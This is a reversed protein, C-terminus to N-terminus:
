TLNVKGSFSDLFSGRGGINVSVSVGVRVWVVVGVWVLKGGWGRRLFFYM